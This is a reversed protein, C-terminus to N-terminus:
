ISSISNTGSWLSRSQEIESSASKPNEKKESQQNLVSRTFPLFTTLSIPKDMLHYFIPQEMSPFCIVDNKLYVQRVLSGRLILDLVVKFIKVLGFGGEGLKHTQRCQVTNARNSSLTLSIGFELM